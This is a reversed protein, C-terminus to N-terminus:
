ETKLWEGWDTGVVHGLSAASIRKYVTTTDQGGEDLGEAYQVIAQNDALDVKFTADAFVAHMYTGEGESGVVANLEMKKQMPANVTGGIKIWGDAVATTAANCDAILAM